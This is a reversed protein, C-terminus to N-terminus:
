NKKLIFSEKAKQLDKKNSNKESYTIIVIYTDGKSSGKKFARQELIVEVNASTINVKFSVDCFDVGSKSGVKTDNKIIKGFTKYETELKSALKDCEKKTIKGETDSKVLNISDQFVKSSKDGFNLLISSSTSLETFNKPYYFAYNTEEKYNLGDIAVVKQPKNTYGIYALVGIGCFCIAGFVALVGIILIKKNM